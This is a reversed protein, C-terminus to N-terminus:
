APTGVADRLRHGAKALKDSFAAPFAAALEEYAAVAETAAAVAEAHRGAAGHIPVVDHLTRALDALNGGRNKAVLARQLAIAESAAACADDNRGVAALDCALEDLIQGLLPIWGPAAAAIARASAM